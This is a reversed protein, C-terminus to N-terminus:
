KGYECALVGISFTLGMLGLKDLLSDEPRKEYLLLLREYEEANFALRKECVNILEDRAEVRTHLASIETRAHDLSDLAAILSQFEEAEIYVGDTPPTFPEGENVRTVEQAGVSIASSLMMLTALFLAKKM